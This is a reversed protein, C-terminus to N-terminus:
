HLSTLAKSVGEILQELLTLPVCKEGAASLVCDSHGMCAASTDAGTQHTHTWTDTDANDCSSFCNCNVLDIAPAQM